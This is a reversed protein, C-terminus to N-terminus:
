EYFRCRRLPNMKWIAGIYLRLEEMTAVDGGQQDKKIREMEGPVLKWADTNTEPVLVFPSVTIPVPIIPIIPANLKLLTKVLTLYARLLHYPSVYLALSKIELTKVMSTVWESQDRTHYAHEQAYVGSTRHLKYPPKMLNEVIPPRIATTEKHWETGAILFYQAAPYDQWGAISEKLRWSEGMGPYVVIANCCLPICPLSYVMIAMSVLEDSSNSVVLRPVSDSM